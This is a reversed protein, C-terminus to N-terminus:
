PPPVQVATTSVAAKDNAARIRRMYRINDSPFDGSQWVVEGAENIDASANWFPDNSLQWFVGDRYLWQQWNGTNNHWRHFVVHGDENLVPATGWDTLPTTVGSKWLEIAHGSPPRQFWAVVGANNIDAWSPAIQTNSLRTTVGADYMM